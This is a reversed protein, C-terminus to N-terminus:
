RQWSAQGSFFAFCVQNVHKHWWTIWMIHLVRERDYKGMKLDTLGSRVPTEPNPARMMCGRVVDPVYHYNGHCSTWGLLVFLIAPQRPKLSPQPERQMRKQTCLIPTVLAQYTLMKSWKRCTCYFTCHELKPPHTECHYINSNLHRHQSKNFAYIKKDCTNFKSIAPHTPLFKVMSPILLFMCFKSHEM